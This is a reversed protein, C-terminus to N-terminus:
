VYIILPDPSRRLSCQPFSHRAPRIRNSMELCVSGNGHGTLLKRSITHYICSQTPAFCSTCQNRPRLPKSMWCPVLTHTPTWGFRCNHNCQLSKGCTFLNSIVNNLWVFCCVPFVSISLLVFISPNTSKRRKWPKSNAVHGWSLGFGQIAEWLSRRSFM